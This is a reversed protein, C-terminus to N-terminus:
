PTAGLPAAYGAVTGGAPSASIETAPLSYWVPRLCPVLMACAAMPGLPVHYAAGYIRFTM